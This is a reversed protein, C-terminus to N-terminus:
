GGCSHIGPLGSLSLSRMKSGARTAPIAVITLATRRLHTTLSGIWMCLCSMIWSRLEIVAIVGMPMGIEILSEVYQDVVFNGAGGSAVDCLNSDRRPKYDLGVSL